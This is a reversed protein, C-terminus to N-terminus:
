KIEKMMQAVCREQLMNKDSFRHGSKPFISQREEESMLDTKKPRNNM